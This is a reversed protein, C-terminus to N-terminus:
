WLGCERGAKYLRQSTKCKAFRLLGRRLEATDHGVEYRGNLHSKWKCLITEAEQCNLRREYRPPAKLDKLGELVHKVAWAGPNKQPSTSYRKCVMEAGERPSDFLFVDGDAFSVEALGLREVMDGVKFAIWPGFGVWTRVYDTLSSVTHNTLIPRFLDTVGVSELYSVSKAANKGRFHRRESGRPWLKSGAAEGMRGWYNGTCIWSATGAHYFCWYALLWKKLPYPDLLAGHLVCYVPDLDNSEVLARGFPIVGLSEM